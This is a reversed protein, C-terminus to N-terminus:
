TDQCCNGTLAQVREGDSKDGDKLQVNKLNQKECKLFTIVCIWM